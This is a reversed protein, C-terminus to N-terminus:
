HVTLITQFCSRSDSFLMNHVSIHLGYGLVYVQIYHGTVKIPSAGLIDSQVMSMFNLM